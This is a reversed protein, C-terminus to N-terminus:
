EGARDLFFEAVGRAAQKHTHPMGTTYDQGRGVETGDIDTVIYRWTGEYAEGLTGGGLKEIHVILGEPADYTYENAFDRLDTYSV